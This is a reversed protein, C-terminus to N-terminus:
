LPLPLQCGPGFLMNTVDTRCGSSDGASGMAPEYWPGPINPSPYYSPAVPYTPYEYGKKAFAYQLEIYKIKLKLIEKELELEKIKDTKM